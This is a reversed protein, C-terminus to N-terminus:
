RQVYEIYEYMFPKCLMLMVMGACGRWVLVVCSLQVYLVEWLFECAQSTQQQRFRYHSFGLFGSISFNYVMLILWDTLIVVRTTFTHWGYSITVLPCQM